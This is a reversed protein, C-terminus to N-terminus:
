FKPNSLPDNPIISSIFLLINALIPLTIAGINVGNPKPSQFDDTATDRTIHVDALACFSYLKPTNPPKLGGLPISYVLKGNEDYVGIAKAGVPATNEAILHKYVYSM